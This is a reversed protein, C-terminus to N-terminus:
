LLEILNPNNNIFYPVSVSKHFYDSYVNYWPTNYFPLQHHFGLCLRSTFQRPSSLSKKMKSCCSRRFVGDHYVCFICKLATYHDVSIRQLYKRNCGSMQFRYFCLQWPVHTQGSMLQTFQKLQVIYIFHMHKYHSNCQTTNLQTLQM